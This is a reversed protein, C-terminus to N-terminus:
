LNWSSKLINAFVEDDDITISLGEYYEEFEVYTIEEKNRCHSFSELFMNLIEMETAEGKQVSPHARANYFKKLNGFTIMGQKNADIKRFAKRVIFKRLESMEGLIGRMFEGYDLSGSGDTDMIEWLRDFYEDPIEIHFDILSKELEFKNILGDGSRDAKRFNSGLGTVTKIGRKKLKNRVSGQILNLIEIDEQEERSPPMHLRNWVENKQSPRVNPLLINEKAENDVDTIRFAVYKQNTVTSPLSHQASTPFLLTKGVQIDVLTYPDGKRRGCERNYTGRAIFPLAKASKGFQRFEYITLTNDLAFFFGTLDRLADHGNRTLIRAGFRVKKSLLNETATGTTQVKSDHLTRIAGRQMGPVHSMAVRYSKMGQDPDSMVPRSLQDIMVTEVLNLKMKELELGEKDMKKLAQLKSDDKPAWQKQMAEDEVSDGADQPIKLKLEEIKRTIEAESDGMANKNRYSQKIDDQYQKYQDKHRQSPAPLDEPVPDKDWATPQQNQKLRNPKRHSPQQQYYQERETSAPTGWSITSATNPTNINYAHRYSGEVFYEDDKLRGLNLAPVHEPRSFPRSHAGSPIDERPEPQRAVRPSPEPSSYSVEEGTIPNRSSRPRGSAPRATRASQSGHITFDMTISESLQA